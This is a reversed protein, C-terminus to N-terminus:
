EAASPEAAALSLGDGPFAVFRAAFGM